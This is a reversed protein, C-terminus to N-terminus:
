LTFWSTHLSQQIFKSNNVHACVPISQTFIIATELWWTKRQVELGYANLQGANRWRGRAIFVETFSSIRESRSQETSM